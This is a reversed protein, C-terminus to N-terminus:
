VLEHFQRLKYEIQCICFQVQCLTYHIQYYIIIMYSSGRVHVYDRVEIPTENYICFVQYPLSPIHPKTASIVVDGGTAVVM